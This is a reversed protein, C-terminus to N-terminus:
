WPLYISGRLFGWVFPQGIGEVLWVKPFTRVGVDSFLDEIECKLETPLLKRMCKLWFETRLAKILAFIVFIAVGAIWGFGRWQRAGLWQRAGVRALKEMITPSTVPLSPLAIPESTITDAMEINVAPMEGDSILTPEPMKDQPLVALPITVLPPVFCKALVILWLLYRVHASRNKLAVAAAAIVAVLVAIQWSQTLLYNTLQTVYTEM